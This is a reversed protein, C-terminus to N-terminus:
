CKVVWVICVKLRQLERQLRNIEANKKALRAEM